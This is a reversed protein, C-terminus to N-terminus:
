KKIISNLYGCGVVTENVYNLTQLDIARWINDIPPLALINFFTKELTSTTLKSFSFNLISAINAPTLGSNGGLATYNISVVGNLNGIFIVCSYVLNFCKTCADEYKLGFVYDKGLKLTRRVDGSLISAEFTNAFFTGEALVVPTTLKTTISHTITIKENLTRNLGIDAQPNLRLQNM